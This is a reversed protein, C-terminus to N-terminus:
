GKLQRWPKKKKFLGINITAGPTLSGLDLVSFDLITTIKFFLGM